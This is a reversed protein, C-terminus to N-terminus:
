MSPPPGMFEANPDVVRDVSLETTLFTSAISTANILATRTVKVPDIIGQDIMNVLKESIVDFGIEFPQEKVKNVIVKGDLGANESIQYLPAELAKAFIKAGVKEDGELTQAFDSVEKSAHIYAAGGGAIIGDEMAARTAALADEMRMKKERLEADSNAGVHILAIGGTMRALRDLIKEKDYNMDTTKYQHRITKIRNEIETKDGAGDVIVTRQRDVIVQRARGCMSIDVTNLEMGTDEGIFVGGTLAAIDRLIDAKRELFLPAKIAVSQCIGKRRNVLLMALAEGAVDDAIIFLEGKAAVVQQLLPLLDEAKKIVKDTLLIYPNKMITEGRDFDSCMYPSIYGRELSMGKVYDITTEMTKSEDITISGDLTVQELTKAIIKGTEEDGASTIAIREAQESDLIEKKGRDLFALAKECAKQMGIRLQIPNSGAAIVREGEDIMAQALVISTTTGDGAIDNTKMAAQSVLAVGMNENGNALVIDKAITVGDNTVLPTRDLRFLVVNRGKPGLTVKVTDALLDVGRRLAARNENGYVTKNSM